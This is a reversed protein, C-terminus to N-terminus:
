VTNNGFPPSLGGWSCLGWGCAHLKWKLKCTSFISLRLTFHREVRSILLNHPYPIAFAGLVAFVRNFHFILVSCASAINMYLSYLNSSFKKNSAIYHTNAHQLRSLFIQQSSKHNNELLRRWGNSGNVSILHLPMMFM